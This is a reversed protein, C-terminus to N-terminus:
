RKVVVEVRRNKSMGVETGSDDAPESADKAAIAIRGADIGAEVLADKVAEAREKALEQLDPRIRTRDWETADFHGVLEIRLSPDEKMAEALNNLWPDMMPDLQRHFRKFYFVQNAAKEAPKLGPPTVGKRSFIYESEADKIQECSCSARNKVPYVEVNDLYSYASFVQQR